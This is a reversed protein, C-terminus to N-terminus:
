GITAVATQFTYVPGSRGRAELDLALGVDKAWPHEDVFAEAGM